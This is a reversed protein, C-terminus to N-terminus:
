LQLLLLNSREQGNGVTNSPDIARKKDNKCKANLKSAETFFYLHWDM